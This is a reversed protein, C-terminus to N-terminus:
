NMDIDADEGTNLLVGKMQLDEVEEEVAEEEVAEEEGQEPTTFDRERM